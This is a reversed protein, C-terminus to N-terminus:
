TGRYILDADIQDTLYPLFGALLISMAVMDKMEIVRLASAPTGGHRIGPYDCTFKYLSKMAVKVEEHPWTNVQNCISGVTNATVGPYRSGIAETLNMQKVICTRIKSDSCDTRLDRVSDEFDKMLGHLHSDLSTAQKLDRLLNAFVGVLTPCLICPRRLDYRLSYKVIFNGLSVFYANSLDDGGFDDLISHASELFTVICREGQLDIAKLAEFASMAQHRNDVIDAIQEVALQNRFGPAIERYLECFIDNAVDHEEFLPLWLEFWLQSWVGLFEGRM